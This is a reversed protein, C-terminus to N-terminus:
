NDTQRLLIELEAIMIATAGWIVTDNAIQYANVKRKFNPHIPTVVEAQVKADPSLLASLPIEIVEEVENKSISFEQPTELYGIYPYVNFNSVVIYVPSLAGITKIKDPAIGIEEYTERLATALFDVDAPEHRGGPFSIQGSHANGDTTRRITLLHWEGNKIFLLVMVASMKANEPLIEPLSKINPFMMALAEKTPLPLKLRNTLYDTLQPFLDAKM